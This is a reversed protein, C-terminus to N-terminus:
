PLERAWLVERGGPYLAHSQPRLGQSRYLAQAGHNGENTNLTLRQAGREPARSLVHRLLARGVGHGRATPEVFLDELHAETGAVWVSVCYRTQTYGVARGGLRALCFELEPAALAAPLSRDLDNDTPAKAALHDRFGAILAALEAADRPEAIQVHLQPAPAHDM